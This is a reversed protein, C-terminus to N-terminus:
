VKREFLLNDPKIDRHIIGKSHLYSLGNLAKKLIKRISSESVPYYKKLFQALTGGTLLPIVLVISSPSIFNEKIPLVNIHFLQSM